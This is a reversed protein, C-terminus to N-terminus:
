PLCPRVEVRVLGGITGFRDLEALLQWNSDDVGIVDALGDLGAKMSSICNDLDRPRRDPPVFLLSVALRSAHIRHAGQARAQLACAARYRKKARALTSWHAHRTNPNLASPPWPFTLNM